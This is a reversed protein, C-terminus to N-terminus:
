SLGTWFLGPLTLGVERCEKGSTVSVSETQNQAKRPRQFAYLFWIREGCGPATLHTKRVVALVAAYELPLSHQGM